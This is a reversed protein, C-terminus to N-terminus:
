TTPSTGMLTPEGSTPNCSPPLGLTNRVSPSCVFYPFRWMCLVDRRRKGHIREKKNKENKRIQGKGGQPKSNEWDTGDWFREM